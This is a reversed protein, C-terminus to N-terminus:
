YSKLLKVVNKKKLSVAVVSIQVLLITPLTLHTYSVPNLKYPVSNREEDWVKEFMLDDYSNQFDTKKYHIMWVQNGTMGGNSNIETLKRSVDKKYKYYYEGSKEIAIYYLGNNTRMNFEDLMKTIENKFNENLYDKDDIKDKIEKFIHESCYEDSEYKNWKENNKGSFDYALNIGKFVVGIIYIVIAVTILIKSFKNQKKLVTNMEDIVINKKDLIQLQRILVRKKKCDMIKQNKQKKMYILRQKKQQYKLIKMLNMLLKIFAILMIM